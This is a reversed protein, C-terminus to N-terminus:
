ETATMWKEGSFATSGKFKHLVFVDADDASPAGSHTQNAGFASIPLIHLAPARGGGWFVDPTLAQGSKAYCLYEAAVDTWATPGTTRLVARLRDKPTLSPSAAALLGEEGDMIRHLMRILVPHFAGTAFAYQSFVVTRDGEHRRTGTTDINQAEVGVILGRPRDAVWEMIPRKCITDSDAYVGGLFTTVLFRYVDAQQVKLLSPWAAQLEPLLLEVLIELDDDDHVVVDFGPNADRWSQINAQVSAPIEEKDPVTIFIVTPIRLQADLVMYLEIYAHYDLNYARDVAYGAGVAKRLCKEVEAKDEAHPTLGLRIAPESYHALHERLLSAAYTTLKGEESESDFWHGDVTNLYLWTKAVRYVKLKGPFHMSFAKLGYPSTDYSHFDSWEHLYFDGSWIATEFMTELSSQNHPNCPKAHQSSHNATLPCVDYLMWM